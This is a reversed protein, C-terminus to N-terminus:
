SHTRSIAITVVGYAKRSLPRAQHRKTIGGVRIRYLACAKKEDLKASRENESIV